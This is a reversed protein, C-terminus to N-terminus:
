EVKALGSFRGIEGLVHWIRIFKIGRCMDDVDKDVLTKYANLIDHSSLVEKSALSLKDYSLRKSRNTTNLEMASCIDALTADLANTPKPDNFTRM